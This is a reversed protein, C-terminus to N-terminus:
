GRRIADLLRNVADRDEASLASECIARLEHSQTRTLNGSHTVRDFLQAIARDSKLSLVQM